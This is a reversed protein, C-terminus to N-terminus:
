SKLENQRAELARMLDRSTHFVALIIVADSNVEYVLLYPLGSISLERTGPIRGARGINPFKELRGATVLIARFIREAAAPNDIAIYDIIEDLDRSAPDAFLLLM